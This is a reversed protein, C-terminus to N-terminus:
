NRADYDHIPKTRVTAIFQTGNEEKGRGRLLEITGRQDQEEEISIQETIDSGVGNQNKMGCPYHVKPFSNPLGNGQAISIDCGKPHNRKRHPGRSHFASVPGREQYRKDECRDLDYSDQDHKEVSESHLVM